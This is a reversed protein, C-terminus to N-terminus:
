KLIKKEDTVNSEVSITFLCNNMTANEFNGQKKKPNEFFSKDTMLHANTFNANKYNSADYPNIYLKSNTFNCNHCDTDNFIPLPFIARINSFNSDACCSDWITSGDEFHSGNFNCNFFYHSYFQAQKFLLKSFNANMIVVPKSFKRNYEFWMSRSYDDPEMLANEEGVKEVRSRFKEIIKKSIELISIKANIDDELFGVKKLEIIIEQCDLDKIKNVFEWSQEYDELEFYVLALNYFIDESSPMLELAKKLKREALIFEEKEYLEVGDNFLSMAIEQSTDKKDM